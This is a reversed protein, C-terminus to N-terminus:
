NIMIKLLFLKTVIDAINDKSAIYTLLAENSAVREHIFYYYLKIHKTQMHYTADHTITITSLNNCCNPMPDKQDLGIKNCLLRQIWVMQKATCDQVVLAWRNVAVKGRVEFIMPVAEKM